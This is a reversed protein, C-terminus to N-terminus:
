EQPKQQQRGPLATNQHMPLVKERLNVSIKLHPLSVLCVFPMILIILYSFFALYPQMTTIIPSNTGTLLLCIGLMMPFHIFLYFISIALLQIAIKHYKRWRIPQRLHCKQWIIRICLTTNFLIIYSECNPISFPPFEANVYPLAISLLSYQTNLQDVVNQTSQM